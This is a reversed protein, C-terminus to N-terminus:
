APVEARADEYTAHCEALPSTFENGLPYMACIVGDGSNSERLRISVPGCTLWACKETLVYDADPLLCKVGALEIERMAFLRSDQTSAIDEGNCLLDRQQSLLQYSEDMAVSDPWGKHLGEIRQMEISAMAAHIRQLMGLTVRSKTEPSMQTTRM